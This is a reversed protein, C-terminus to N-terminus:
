CPLNAYSRLGMFANPDPNFCAKKPTLYHRMATLQSACVKTLLDRQRWQQNM